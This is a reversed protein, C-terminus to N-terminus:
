GPDYGYDALTQRAAETKLYDLFGIAVENGAARNLLVADQRIPDYLSQPPQWSSGSSQFAPSQLQSLAVFGLEANGSSVLAFAQGVTQGRVVKDSLPEALGLGDLVQVAAAGYPALDPNAMALSRFAAEELVAAGDGETLLAADASWLVLKGIAYTFRTESDALGAEILMDVRAQDASLFLDFPAGNSAQAYLSGTSGAALSIEYGTQREYDAELTSAAEHFNTAVAVLADGAPRGDGCGVLGVAMLLAVGRIGTSVMSDPLMASKAGCSGNLRRYSLRNM